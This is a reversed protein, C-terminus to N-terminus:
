AIAGKVRVPLRYESLSKGAIKVALHDLIHSHMQSVRSENVRLIAAIQKMTKGEHYYLALLLQWRKPLEDVAAAIIRSREAHLAQEDPWQIATDEIRPTTTDDSYAASLSEHTIGVLLHLETVSIGMEAAIQQDTPEEQLRQELQAKVREVQKLRRRQDRTLPDDTRLSDLMAGRVRHKAYSAFPVNYNHRFSEQASLLGVVGASILDDLDVNPPLTDHLRMAIAKVMPLAQQLCELRNMYHEDGLFFPLRGFHLM